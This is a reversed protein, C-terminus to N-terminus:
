RWVGSIYIVAAIVAITVLQRGIWSAFSKHQELEMVRQELEMLGENLSSIQLKLSEFEAYRIPKETMEDITKRLAALQKEIAEARRNILDRLTGDTGPWEM